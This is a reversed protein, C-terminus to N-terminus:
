KTSMQKYTEDYKVGLNLSLNIIIAGLYKCSEAVYFQTHNNILKPQQPVTSLKRSTGRLMCKTKSAKLNTALENEVFYM